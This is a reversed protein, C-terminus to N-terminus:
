HFYTGPFIDKIKKKKKQEDTTLLKTNTTGDDTIRVCTIHQLLHLMLLLLILVLLLFFLSLGDSGCCVRNRDPLIFNLFVCSILLGDCVRSVM